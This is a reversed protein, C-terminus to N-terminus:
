LSVLLLSLNRLHQIYNGLILKCWLTSPRLTRYLSIATASRYVTCSNNYNVLGPIQCTKSFRDCHLTTSITLETVYLLLVSILQYQEGFKIALCIYKAM